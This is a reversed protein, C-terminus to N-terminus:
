TVQSQNRHLFPSVRLRRHLPERRLDIGMDVQICQDAGSLCGWLQVNDWPIRHSLDGGRRVAARHHGHRPAPSEGEAILLRHLQERCSAALHLHEIGGGVVAQRLAGSSDVKSAPEWLHM